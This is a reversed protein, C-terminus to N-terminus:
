HCKLFVFYNKEHLAAQIGQNQSQRAWKALTKQISQPPLKEESVVCVSNARQFGYSEIDCRAAADCAPLSVHFMESHASGTGTKEGESTSESLYTNAPFCVFFFTNKKIM